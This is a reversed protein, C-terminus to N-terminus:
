TNGFQRVISEINIIGRYQPSDRIDYSQIDSKIIKGFRTVNADKM